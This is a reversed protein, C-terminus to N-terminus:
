EKVSSKEKSELEKIKRFEYAAMSIAVIASLLDAIPGTYIIGNIGFYLPLILLFPIFFLIQRTM